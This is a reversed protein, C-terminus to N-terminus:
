KFWGKTWKAATKAGDWVKGAGDSVSKVVGPAAKIANSAASWTKDVAKEIAKDTLVSAGIGAVYGVGAGIATGPGPFIMSGVAAGLAAGQSAAVTAVVGKAVGTVGAKVGTNLSIPETGKPDLIRGSVLKGVEVVGGVAGGLRLAARGAQTALPSTLFPTLINYRGAAVNFINGAKIHLYGNELYKAGLEPLQGVAKWTTPLISKIGIKKKFSDFFTTEKKSNKSEQYTYRAMGLGTEAVKELGGNLYASALKNVAGLAKFVAGRKQGDVDPCPNIPEAASIKAFSKRLAVYSAAVNQVATTAKEGIKRATQRAAEAVKAGAAQVAQAAKKEMREAWDAVAGPAAKLAQMAPSNSVVKKAGTALESAAQKAKSTAANWAKTFIGGFAM